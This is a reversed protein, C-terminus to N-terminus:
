VLRRITAITGSGAVRLNLKKEISYFILKGLARFCGAMREGRQLFWRVLRSCPSPYYDSVCESCGRKKSIEIGERLGREFRM